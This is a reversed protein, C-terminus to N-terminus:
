FHFKVTVSLHSSVPQGGLRAPEYKWSRLADLAAQRLLNPGAVVKVETVKGTTDILADLTVVGEVHESKAQPKGWAFARPM